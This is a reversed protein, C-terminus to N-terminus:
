SRMYMAQMDTGIRKTRRLGWTVETRRLQGPAAATHRELVLRWAPLHIVPRRHTHHRCRLRPMSHAARRADAYSHLTGLQPVRRRSPMAGITTDYRSVMWAPVYVCAYLVRPFDCQQLFRGDYRREMMTGDSISHTNSIMSESALAAIGISFM